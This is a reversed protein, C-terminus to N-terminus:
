KILVIKAVSKSKDTLKLMYMGSSLEYSNFAIKNLGNTSLITKAEIVKGVYDYFEIKV